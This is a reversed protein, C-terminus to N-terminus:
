EKECYTLPSQQQKPVHWQPPPLQSPPSPYKIQNAASIKVGGWGEGKLPSPTLADRKDPSPALEGGKYPPTPPPLTKAESALTYRDIDADPFRYYLRIQQLQRNTALLPQEDWLRINRIIRDNERIKQETLNAQPNFTAAAINDLGFAQRTLAITRRIYPSERALENPQVLLAQVIAPVISHTAISMVLYLGLALSLPRNNIQHPFYISRWILYAGIAFALISLAQNAPLQVHIDTYSAGYSVGRPSYLLEYCSLWYSFSVVLMLVGGLGSLHRQQARSFGLFKGQSLSDGSLLYTLIVAVFGYLCMGVLWFEVLEAVPLGFIYNSIDRDFVPDRHQFDTAQFYPLVRMWQGSVVWAISISLIPAISGLLFRPYILTAISWIGAGMAMWGHRHLQEVMQWIAEPSLLVPAPPTIDPLNPDINWQSMVVRLYHIFIGGILLSLSITMPLLWRLNLVTSIQQSELDIGGRNIAPKQGNIETIRTGLPKALPYPYKLRQALALNGLLYVATLIFIGVGLLGQTSLRLLYMPLYGVEEFWLMEAGLRAILKISLWLLILGISLVILYNRKASKSLSLQM